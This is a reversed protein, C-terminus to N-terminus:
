GIEVGTGFAVAISLRSSVSVSRRASGIVRATIAASRTSGAASSAAKDPSARLNSGAHGAAPPPQPPVTEPARASAGKASEQRGTLHVGVSWIRCLAHAVVITVFLLVLGHPLRDYRFRRHPFTMARPAPIPRAM